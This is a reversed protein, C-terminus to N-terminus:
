WRHTEGRKEPNRFYYRVMWYLAAGGPTYSEVGNIALVSGDTMNVVVPKVKRESRTRTRARPPASTVKEVDAWKGGFEKGSEYVRFGKATLRVQGMTRHRYGKIMAFAGILALVACVIPPADGKRTHLAGVAVVTSAYQGNVLSAILWWLTTGFFVPVVVVAAVILLVQPRWGEPKPLRGSV